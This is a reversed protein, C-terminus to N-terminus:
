VSAPPWCRSYCRAFNRSPSRGARGQGGCRVRGRRAMETRRLSAVARNAYAEVILRKLTVNKGSFTSPGVAIQNYYDKGVPTPSLKVSAVDFSQAHIAAALFAWALLCRRM